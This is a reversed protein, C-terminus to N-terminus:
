FRFDLLRRMGVPFDPDGVEAEAVDEQAQDDRDRRRVGAVVPEVQNEGGHERRHDDRAHEGAAVDAANQALELGHSTTAVRGAQSLSL